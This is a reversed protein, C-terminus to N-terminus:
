VAKTQYYVSLKLALSDHNLVLTDHNSTLGDHDPM